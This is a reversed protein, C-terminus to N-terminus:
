LQEEYTGAVCFGTVKADALLKAGEPTRQAIRLLSWILGAEDGAGENQQNSAEAARQLADRDTTGIEVSVDQWLAAHAM